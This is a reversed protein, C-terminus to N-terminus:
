RGGNVNVNGVGQGPGLGGKSASHERRGVKTEEKREKEEGERGDGCENDGGHLVLQWRVTKVGRGGRITDCM